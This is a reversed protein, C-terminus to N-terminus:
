DQSAMWGEPDLAAEVAQAATLDGGDVDNLDELPLDAYFFNDPEDSAGRFIAVENLIVANRPSENLYTVVDEIPADDFRTGKTKDGMDTDNTFIIEM